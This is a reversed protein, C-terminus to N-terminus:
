AVFDFGGYYGPGSDAGAVLFVNEVCHLVYAQFGWGYAVVGVFYEPGPLVFTLGRVGPGDFFM